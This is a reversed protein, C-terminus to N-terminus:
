AIKDYKPLAMGEAEAAALWEGLAPLALMTESYKREVDGLPVVYSRFRLVVPAYM